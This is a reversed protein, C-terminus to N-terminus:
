IGLSAILDKHVGEISQEGNIVHLTYGDKIRLHEITPLVDNTYEDLRNKMGEDNDDARGRLKMRKIAEDRSVIIHILEVQTRGYFGLISEMFHAQALTRPFGDTMLYTDKGLSTILTNAFMSVGLFNPQLYGQELREKVLLGTYNNNEVLKRFEGGVYSWLVDATPDKEQIYKQLLQIQTGKGSGVIGFFVFTRPSIDHTMYETYM